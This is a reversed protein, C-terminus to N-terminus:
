NESADRGDREWVQTWTAGDDESIQVSTQDMARFAYAEVNRYYWFSLTVSDGAGSILPSTLTGENAAFDSAYSSSADAGYYYAKSGGHVGPSVCSSKAALHWLGTAQWGTASGEFGDSFLVGSAASTTTAAPTATKGAPTSTHTPTALSSSATATAQ